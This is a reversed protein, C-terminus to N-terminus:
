PAPVPLAGVSSQGARASLSNTWAAVVGSPFTQILADMRSRISAVVDANRGARDHGEYKDQAVNYLEPNPLPLNIRGLAPEPTFAWTNFRTVHLKWQGIRAAQLQIDNFYLFADRSLENTWGKLMPSIDIGDSPNQPLPAGTFAAVTPLIDLSTTLGSCVQGAPISGSYRAILPVRVGGEFIEGKRHRLGGTSGQYWPGHDSSFLVLTNSDLGNDKLAQLVAGVSADVERVVDGYLGQGSSGQFAASPLLPLHPASHAMYLFFPSAKANDIYNVACQTFRQTLTSVNAPEEIIDLNHMLPLPYMDASYPVGYFEDFGKSTPLFQPLSGLHWKGICISSYGAPKLMQAITTESDPLGYRDDPNIVRPIGYRNPYRGTMLAARAPSCVASASTFHTFRMGDRAMQDLNPTSICSGYSGLDGYGLDDCYILVINPPRSQATASIAAAAGTAATKLFTRRNGAMAQFLERRTGSM